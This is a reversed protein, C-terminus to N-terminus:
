AQEFLEISKDYKGQEQYCKGIFFSIKEKTKVENLAEIAEDIKGMALYSIGLLLYSEVDGNEISEEIASIKDALKKLGNKEGFVNQKLDTLVIPSINENNLITDINFGDSEMIM